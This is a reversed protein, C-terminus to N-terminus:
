HLTTYKGTNLQIQAEYCAVSVKPLRHIILVKKKNIIM